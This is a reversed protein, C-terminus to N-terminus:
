KMKRRTSISKIINTTPKRLRPLKDTDLKITGCLELDKVQKEQLAEMQRLMESPVLFSQSGTQVGSTTSFDQGFKEVGSPLDKQIDYLAVELDVFLQTASRIVASIKPDAYWDRKGYYSTLKKVAAKAEVLVDLSDNPIKVAM